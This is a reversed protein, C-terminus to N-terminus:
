VQELSDDAYDNNFVVEVVNFDNLFGKVLQTHVRQAGGYGYNPIVMLITRKQSGLSM